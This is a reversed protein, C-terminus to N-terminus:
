IFKVRFPILCFTNVKIIQVDNRYEDLIRRLQHIIPPQEFGGYEVDSDSDSDEPVHCSFLPWKVLILPLVNTGESSLGPNFSLGCWISAM